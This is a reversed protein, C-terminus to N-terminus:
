TASAVEWLEIIQDPGGTLLYKNDHSFRACIFRFGRKLYEAKISINKAKTPDSTPWIKASDYKSVSLATSGDDSLKVLQVDDQHQIKNVPQEKGLQWITAYFDESGTILTKGDASIDVSRVRNKHPLIQKIGGRVIDFVVATNNDLGLLALNAQPTLSISLIDSPAAWFREGAGSKTNWLVLNNTDATVAWKGDYSIDSTLLTSLETARHNWNFLREGDTLQWFSGGDYISAVVAYDGHQSLAASHLGKRAVHLSESPALNRNCGTVTFICTMLTSIAILNLLHTHRAM